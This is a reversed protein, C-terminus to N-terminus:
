SPNLQLDFTCDIASRDAAAAATLWIDTKAPYTSPADQFFVYGTVGDIMRVLRKPTVPVAIKDADRRQWVYVRMPKAADVSCDMRTMTATYGAPVTYRAVQTQDLSMGDVRDLTAQVAGGGAIRVTILGAAGGVNSSDYTAAGTVYVRNLRRYQKTSPVATTGNLTVTESIEAFANDLGELVLTRAGIGTASDLASSSVTELTAAATPWAYTGGASWIDEAASKDIDPNRGFKHVVKPESKPEAALLVSPVLFAVLVAVHGSRRVSLNM